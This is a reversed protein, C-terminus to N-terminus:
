AETTDSVQVNQGYTPLGSLRFINKFQDLRQQSTNLRVLTRRLLRHWLSGSGPVLFLFARM